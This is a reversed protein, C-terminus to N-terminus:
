SLAPKGDESCPEVKAQGPHGGDKREKKEEQLNELSHKKYDDQFSHLKKKIYLKSRGIINKVASFLRGGATPDFNVEDIEESSYASYSQIYIVHNDWTM